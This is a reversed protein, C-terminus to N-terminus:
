NIQTKTFKKELRKLTKRAAIQEASQKSKGKAKSYVHEGIITVVTFTKDHDPGEEQIVRYIPTQKFKEQAFEQLRSKPDIDERTEIIEKVKYYLNKRVFSKAKEFGQDYYIAGLLAEFADALIYPRKRGGTAEESKSMIIYNGLRMKKAVSSLTETKVIAARLSTMDGESLHPFDRFLLETVILELVADGLFELRENHKKRASKHTLSEIYLDLNNTKIDIKKLLRSVRNNETKEIIQEYNVHQSM